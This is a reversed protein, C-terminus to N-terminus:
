LWQADSRQRVLLQHASSKHHVGIDVVSLKPEQVIVHKTFNKYQTNINWACKVRLTVGHLIKSHGRRAGNVLSDHSLIYGCQARVLLVGRCEALVACVVRTMIIHTCMTHVKNHMHVGRLTLNLTHVRVGFNKLETGFKLARVRVGVNKWAAGFKLVCVWV